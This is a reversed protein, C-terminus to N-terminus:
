NADNGSDMKFSAGAPILHARHLHLPSGARPGGERDGQIVTPLATNPQWDWGASPFSFM